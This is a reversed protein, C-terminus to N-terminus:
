VPVVHVSSTPQAMKITLNIYDDVTEDIKNQALISRNAKVLSAV